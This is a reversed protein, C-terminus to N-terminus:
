RTASQIEQLNMPVHKRWYEYLDPQARLQEEVADIEVPSFYNRRKEPVKGAPVHAYLWNRYSKLGEAYGRHIAELDAGREFRSTRSKSLLRVLGFRRIRNGHSLSVVHVLEHALIGCVGDSPAQQQFMEPNVEIFFRMRAPLFFRGLSFRTRFYDSQSHFTRVRLDVRRLEPFSAGRLGGIVAETTSINRVAQQGCGGTEGAGTSQAGALMPALLTYGLALARARRNM